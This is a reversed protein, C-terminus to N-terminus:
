DGHGGKGHGHGKPPPAPQAAVTLTVTTGERVSGSQDMAIVTGAPQPSPKSVVSVQLNKAKLAQEVEAVPKGIYDSPNITVDLPGSAVTLTVTTGTAVRSGRAPNERLVLGAAHRPDHVTRRTAKLGVKDLVTAASQYSEGTVRPVTAYTTAGCSRLLFFGLVVVVAGIAIFVNRVRRRQNEDYAPERDAVPASAEEPEPALTPLLKTDHRQNIETVADDGPGRMSAALALATRGFDGASPQRRAPDKELARRVFDGVVPPVDPLPPPDNHLHAMAVGVASDATFPRNGTLCEYAVVGLSYIDSAATVPRGGAQEPSLYAATGVVLGTKTLPASDVARAIGFDTVKVVGDPRILLNGPKVDRHIVGADHAAQLALGAQGVVDLARDPALRGDRALATSLPEGDVFEMVLYAVDGVEGYDYVNAIGPHSLSATHRAESRFRELFDPDAAHEPKLVKVAVVRGLVADRARWVEGMGGIAIRQELSYRDALTVDPTLSM